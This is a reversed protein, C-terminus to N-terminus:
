AATQQHVGATIADDIQWHFVAFVRTAAQLLWLAAAILGMWRHTSVVAARFTM